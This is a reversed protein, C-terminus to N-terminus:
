LEILMYLLANTFLATGSAVTLLSTRRWSDYVSSSSIRSKNTRCLSTIQSSCAYYSAAAPSSHLTLPMLIKCLAPSFSVRETQWGMKWPPMANVTPNSALKIQSTVKLGQGKASLAFVAITLTQLHLAFLAFTTVLQLVYNAGVRNAPFLFATLLIHYSFVCVYVSVSLVVPVPLYSSM